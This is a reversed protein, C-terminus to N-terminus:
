RRRDMWIIALAMCGLFSAYLSQTVVGAQRIALNVSSCRLILM